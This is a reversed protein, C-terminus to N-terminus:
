RPNINRVTILFWKDMIKRSFISIILLTTAFSIQWFNGKVGGSGFSAFVVSLPIFGLMSGLLFDKYSVRCSGCLLSMLTSNTFPILRGYLVWWFANDQFRNKWTKLTGGVRREVIGSLFSKGAWYLFSAGLLSAILSLFVGMFAGYIVGGLASSWIRPAGASILGGWLFTFLIASFMRSSLGSGGQLITMLGNTGFLHERIVPRGLYLAMSTFFAVLLTIRIFDSVLHKDIKLDM